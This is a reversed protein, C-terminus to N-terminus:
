CKTELNFILIFLIYFVKYFNSNPNSIVIGYKHSLTEKVYPLMSGMQLGEDICLSRSWIGPQTRTGPVIIVLTDCRRWGTSCYVPLRASPDQCETLGPIYM